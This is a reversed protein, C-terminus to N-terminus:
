RPARAPALRRTAAAGAALLLGILALLAPPPLAPAAPPPLPDTVALQFTTHVSWELELEPYWLPIDPVEALAALRYSGVPLDGAELCGQMCGATREVLVAPDPALRELRVLGNGRETVVGGPSAYSYDQYVLDIALEYYGGTEDVDFDYVFSSTAPFPGGSPVEEGPNLSRAFLDGSAAGAPLSSTQTAEMELHILDEFPPGVDPRAVAASFPAFDGAAVEETLLGLVGFQTRVFREQAVPLPTPAAAAPGALLALTLAHLVPPRM